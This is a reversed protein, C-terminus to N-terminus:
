LFKAENTQISQTVFSYCKKKGDKFMVIISEDKNKIGKLSLVKEIIFEKTDFSTDFRAEPIPMSGGEFCWLYLGSTDGGKILQIKMGEKIEFGSEFKYSGVNKTLQGFCLPSIVLLLIITFNKM